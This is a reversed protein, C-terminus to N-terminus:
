HRMRGIARPWPCGAKGNVGVPSLGHSLSGLRYPFTRRADDSRRRRNLNIDGNDEHTIRGHCMLSDRARGASVLVPQAPPTSNAVVVIGTVETWPGYRTQDALLAPAIGGIISALGGIIWRARVAYTQGDSLPPTRFYGTATAARWSESLRAGAKPRSNKVRM